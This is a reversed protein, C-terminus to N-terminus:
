NTYTLVAFSLDLMRLHAPLEEGWPGWGDGWRCQSRENACIPKLPSENCQFSVQQAKDLLHQYPPQFTDATAPRVRVPKAAVSARKYTTAHPALSARGTTVAGSYSNTKLASPETPKPKAVHNSLSTQKM